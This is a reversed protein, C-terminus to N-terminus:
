CTIKGKWKGQAVLRGIQKRVIKARAPTIKDLITRGVLYDLEHQFVRAELKSCQICVQAGGPIYASLSLFEYRSVIERYGPISLTRENEAIQGGGPKVSSPNIFVSPPNGNFGMIAFIQLPLGIQPGALGYAGWHRMTDLLDQAMYAVEPCGFHASSIMAAPTAFIENPYTLIPKIM